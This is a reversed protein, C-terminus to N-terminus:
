RVHRAHPATSKATTLVDTLDYRPVAGSPPASPDLDGSATLVVRVPHEPRAAALRRARLAPDRILLRPNDRRVTTAGVVIADCSARLEDVRALDAPGSLMLREPSADDIRGDVSM